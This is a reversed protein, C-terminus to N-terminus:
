GNARLGLMPFGLVPLKRGMAVPLVLPVLEMGHDSSTLLLMGNGTKPNLLAFNRYGDNWGWQFLAREKGDRALGWGLGWDVQADADAEVVPSLFPRFGKSWSLFRTFDDLTTLLSGNMLALGGIGDVLKGDAKMGRAVNERLDQRLDFASRTMRRPKLVLEDVVETVPRGTIREVARQLMIYGAGSYGWKGGPDGIFLLPRNFALNPLGTRHSLVLRATIREIRPDDIVDKPGKPNWPQREHVYKGGLYRVLPVDLDIKGKAALRLVAAAFVPKTLSAAEFVTDGDIRRGGEETHGFAERYAVKGGRFVAVAAGPIKLEAMKAVIEARLAPYPDALAPSLIWPAALVSLM